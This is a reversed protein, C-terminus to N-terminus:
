SFVSMCQATTGPAKSTIIPLDDASIVSCPVSSTFAPAQLARTTPPSRDFMVRCQVKVCAGVWGRRHGDRGPWMVDLCAFGDRRYAGSVSQYKSCGEPM